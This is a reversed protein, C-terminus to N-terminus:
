SEYSTIVMTEDVILGVGPAYRKFDRTRGLPNIDETVLTDDFTGAPTEFTEGLSVVFAGDEAVGPAREQQHYTEPLPDAPMLIGPMAGNEGARWAGGHGVIEGDRYDDVDEGFYCVSGDEAQAVFNRSVEVLEDDIWEREEFVLTEVGAIVETTPLVTIQVAAHRGGADGELLSQRGESFPLYRNTIDLTFTGSPDCVEPSLVIPADASPASRPPEAATGEQTPRNTSTTPGEDPVEIPPFITTPPSSTRSCSGVYPAMVLVLVMGVTRGSGGPPRGAVM